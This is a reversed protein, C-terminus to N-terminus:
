KVYAPSRPLDIYRDRLKTQRSVLPVEEGRIFVADPSTMVELPDGDM